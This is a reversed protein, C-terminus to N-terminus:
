HCVGVAPENTTVASPSCSGGQDGSNNASAQPGPCWTTGGSADLAHLALGAAIGELVERHEVKQERRWCRMLLAESVFDGVLREAVPQDSSSSSRELRALVQAWVSGPRPAEVSLKSGLGTSAVLESWRLQRGLCRFQETAASSPTAPEGGTADARPLAAAWHMVLQSVDGFVRHSFPCVLSDEAGTPVPAGASSRARWWGQVRPAVLSRYDADGSVPGAGARLTALLTGGAECRDGRSADTGVGGKVTSNASRM